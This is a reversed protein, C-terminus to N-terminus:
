PVLLKCETLKCETLKCEAFGQCLNVSFINKSHSTPSTEQTSFLLM